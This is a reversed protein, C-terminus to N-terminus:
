MTFSGFLGWQLGQAVQVRWVGYGQGQRLRVTPTAATCGVQEHTRTYIDVHNQQICEGWISVGTAAQLLWCGRHTTVVYCAPTDAGYRVCCKRIELVNLLGPTVSLRNNLVAKDVSASRLSLPQLLVLAAGRIM